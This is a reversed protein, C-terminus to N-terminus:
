VLRRGAVNDPTMPPAPLAVAGGCVELPSGGAGAFRALLLIRTMWSKADIGRKRKKAENMQNDERDDKDLLLKATMM